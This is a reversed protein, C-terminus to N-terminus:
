RYCLIQSHLLYCTRVKTGVAKLHVALENRLQILGRMEHIGASVEQLSSNRLYLLLGGEPDDRRESMMM